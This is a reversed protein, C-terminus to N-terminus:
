FDGLMQGDARHGLYQMLPPAMNASLFRVSGDGFAFHAGGAHHSGFGGVQLLAPDSEDVDEDEETEEPVEPLAMPGGAGGGAGAFMNM